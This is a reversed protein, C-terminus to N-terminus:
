WAEAGVLPVFRVPAISRESLGGGHGREVVVLQQETRGGLPIVLRGGLALQDLLAHPIVPAAATVMIRDYPATPPWGGSGDAAVVQVNAYGLHDLVRRARDALMLQREVTVVERALDALVAAQYGSGTGVELVRHESRVDLAETMMAVVTPQSITQDLGIPLAADEFARHRLDADVFVDRPVHALVTLVREGAAGERRLQAVLRGQTTEWGVNLHAEPAV